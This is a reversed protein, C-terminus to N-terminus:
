THATPRLALLVEFALDPLQQAESLVHVEVHDKLALSGVITLCRGSGSDSGGARAVTAAAAAATAPAQMATNARNDQEDPGSSHGLKNQQQSPTSPTDLIVLRQAM